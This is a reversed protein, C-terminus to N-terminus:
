IRFQRNLEIVPVWTHSAVTCAMAHQTQLLYHMPIAGDDFEDGWERPDAFGVSKAEVLGGDSALGDVTVWRKDWTPDVVRVQRDSVTLKQKREFRAIALPELANGMELHLAEADHDDNAAIGLKEQWLQYPTKWKSLGVAAAADSAGLGLARLQANM